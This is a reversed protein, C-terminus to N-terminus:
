SKCEFIVLVLFKEVFEIVTKIESSTAFQMRISSHFLQDQFYKRITPWCNFCKRSDPTKDFALSVRRHTFKCITQQHISSITDRCIGMWKASLETWWKCIIGPSTFFHMQCLSSNANSWLVNKHVFFTNEHRLFMFGKLKQTPGASFHLCLLNRKHNNNTQLIFHFITKARM